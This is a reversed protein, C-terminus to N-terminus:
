ASQGGYIQTTILSYYGRVAKLLNNAEEISTYRHPQGDQMKIIRDAQIEYRTTLSIIKGTEPDVSSERWIWTHEDLCFFERHHGEPVPGFLTGGLKSEMRILDQASLQSGKSPISAIKSIINNILSM